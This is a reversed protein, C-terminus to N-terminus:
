SLVSCFVVSCSLLCQGRVKQARRAYAEALDLQGELRELKALLPLLLV